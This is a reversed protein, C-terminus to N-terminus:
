PARPAAAIFERAHVRREFGSPSRGGFRQRPLQHGSGEGVELARHHIGRHLRTKNWEEQLIARDGGLQNDPDAGMTPPELRVLDLGGDDLVRLRRAGDGHIQHLEEPPAIQHLYRVISHQRRRQPPGRFADQMALRPTM